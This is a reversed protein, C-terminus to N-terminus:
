PARGPQLEPKQHPELESEKTSNHIVSNEEKQKQPERGQTIPLEQFAYWEAGCFKVLVGLFGLWIAKQNGNGLELNNSHIKSFYGIGMTNTPIPPPEVTLGEQIWRLCKEKEM